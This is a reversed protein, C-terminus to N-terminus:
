AAAASALKARAAFQEAKRAVHRGYTHRGVVDLLFRNFLDPVAPLPRRVDVILVARTESASNVVSHPWSDDFLVAEGERWVYDQANVVLKPPNQTPVRLGLHYRLYGLYPGEHQPVSKGPELISFFAQIMHPVRELVRCTEPCLARNAGPKHGMIELMFVNWRKPTTDSIAREGSDVEHYQPMENSRAMLQDFERRIIPYAQTVLDLAPYAEKINFFTPRRARDVYRGFYANAMSKFIHYDLKM